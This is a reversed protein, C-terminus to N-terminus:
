LLQRGSGFVAQTMLEAWDLPTMHEPGAGGQKTLINGNTM